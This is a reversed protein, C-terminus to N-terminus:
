AAVVHRDAREDAPPRHRAVHFGRGPGFDRDDRRRLLRFRAGRRHSEGARHRGAIREPHRGVSLDRTMVGRAGCSVPLAGTLAQTNYAAGGSGNYLVVLYGSMPTGAAGEVEVAEGSDVGNNDYHIENIHFDSPPPLVVPVVRLSTTGAVGNPATATITADGPVLGQVQGSGNVSAVAPDSSSWTYVVGPVPLGSADVSSASFNFTSGANISINQPAVTVRAVQAFVPSSLLIAGAALLWRRLNSTSM